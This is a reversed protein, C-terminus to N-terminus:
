STIASGPTPLPANKVLLRGNEVKWEREYLPRPPPGAAVRGDSYFVGGHCPCLFLDAGALWNVPCGLHTCHVSFVTFQADGTPANRRVWLATEATQGAWPLPSPDRFRRFATEGPKFDDVGGVDVYEVPAPQFLPALLYGLIPLGVLAGMVGTLGVNLWTLFARRRV